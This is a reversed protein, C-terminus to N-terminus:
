PVSQARVPCGNRASPAHRFAGERQVARAPSPFARNELVQVRGGAGSALLSATVDVHRSWCGTCLVGSEQPALFRANSLGAALRRRRRERVPRGPAPPGGPLTLCRGRVPPCAVPRCGTRVDAPGGGVVEPSLRTAAGWVRSDAGMGGTPWAVGRGARWAVRGRTWAAHAVLLRGAMIDQNAASSSSAETGPRSCSFPM